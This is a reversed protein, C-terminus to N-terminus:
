IQLALFRGPAGGTLIKIVVGRLSCML